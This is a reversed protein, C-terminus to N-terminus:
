EYEFLSMIKSKVLKTRKKPRMLLYDDVLSIWILLEGKIWILYLCPYALNRTYKMFRFVKLLEKLFEVSAQRLGYLKRLLLLLFNVSYYKDMGQPM